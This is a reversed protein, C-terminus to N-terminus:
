SLFDLGKVFDKRNILPYMLTYDDIDPQAAIARSADNQLPRTSRHNLWDHVMSLTIRLPSGQDGGSVLGYGRLHGLDEPYDKAYSSCDAGSAIMKLMEFEDEYEERFLEMVENLIPAAEIQLDSLATRAVTINVQATGERGKLERYVSSGYLRTLLPHGATRDWVFQLARPGWDLRMKDGISKLLEDSEVQELLSVYEKSIWSYLPNDEGNVRAVETLHPNTGTLFFVINSSLQQSIGRLFRWIEVFEANWRDVHSRRLMLDIEDIAIVVLNGEGVIRRLDDVLDMKLDRGSAKYTSLRQNSGVVSLSLRRDRTRLSDGIAQCISWFFYESDRSISDVVQFDVHAVRVNRKERLRRILQFLLSTKGVKRLGFFGLSNRNHVLDAIARQLINTRGFFDRSNRVATRLHYLDRTAARSELTATCEHDTAGQTSLSSIEAFSYAAFTCPEGRSLSEMTSRTNDPRAIVLILESEIRGDSSEVRKRADHICRHDISTYGSIAFLIEKGSLGFRDILTRPPRLYLWTIESTNHSRQPLEIRTPTFGLRSHFVRVLHHHIGGLDMLQKILSGATGLKEPM